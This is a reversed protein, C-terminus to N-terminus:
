PCERSIPRIAYRQSLCGFDHRQYKRETRGSRRSGLTGLAAGAASTDIDIVAGASGVIGTSEQEVIKDIFM